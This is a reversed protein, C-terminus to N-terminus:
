RGGTVPVSTGVSNTLTVSVTGIVNADGNFTFPVSLSTTGGNSIGAGSAFWAAAEPGFTVTCNPTCGNMQTGSAATFVFAGSILDRSTSSADLFVQFGSATVNTIKVSGPVIVPPLAPLTIKVSPPTGAFPVIQAGGPIMLPGLSAVIDGAVSGLQVAPIPPNPTTSNAPISVAFRTTGDPFQADNYGAPLGPANTLFGLTFTASLAFPYSQALSLQLTPQDAPTALQPATITISPLAYVPLAVTATTSQSGSDQLRMMLQYNGTTGPTGSVVATDGSATMALDPMSNSPMTWKYPSTGGTAKFTQSWPVSVFSTVPTTPSTIQIPSSSAVTLVISPSISAGDRTDGSYSASLAHSGAALTSTTYTATGGSLIATALVAQSDLFTISGTASSPTVSATLTVSQGPSPSTPSASLVTATTLKGISEPFGNSTSTGNKSDGSYSAYLTHNGAPLTSTAFTAIGGNLPATGLTTSGDQFTVSGTASAPSVTATMTVAQGFPSPAPTVSLTTTTTSLAVSETVPNSTSAGNRADGGYSASLTHNGASLTSTTVTAVGSNLYATGLTTSGDQFTVSGTASAPSVTATLTVPQGLTAPAPTVTLSTTTAAASVSETFPTSNSAANRLDGGYSASLSHSGSALTSTTFTAIGGSLAITGLATSGDQFTVSGTASAPSVTATLTVPQGLPAPSPSVSLTTTTTSLAVSETALNSTSSANKSDGGYSASLIHSGSALTATTFTAIGGNLTATGLTLLGDLFTVTGVASSPTVTATLTVSQGPSAPIPTASLATTSNQLVGVIRWALTGPIRSSPIVGGSFLSGSNSPDVLLGAFASFNGTREAATPVYAAVPIGPSLQVTGCFMQNPGAPLPLNQYVTFNALSMSGVAALDGASNPQTVSAISSFPVFGAPFVACAPAPAVTEIVSNSSSAAYNGDGGYSATLTHTGTTLTSTSITASGNALTAAGLTVTGDKFSVTGTAASPTLTATLIVAQTPTASAPAAVLTATTAAPNVTETVSASKASAYNTDGGYTAQLSHAGVKLTSTTITASGSSLTAGGLSIGTSTDLVSVTGTASAPSVALALTVTQAYPAPNPSPTLTVTVSPANVVETVTTSTSPSYATSGNYSATLSHSGSTLTSTALTTSGNSLTGTGLTATGDKFTVTGTASIPAVTATLNVSQGAAVPNPSAALITTTTASGSSNIVETVSASTSAGNNTDGSYSATLTHSGSTLTSTSFTAVGGSLTVTNLPTTGDKFVVTGTVGAPTVSATMTVSQGPTAPNPTVVLLTAATNTASNIVETVPASTSAANTTDGSYTATLSHTGATLTSTAFAAAGNSMTVTNLTAAGDKFTISGTATTPIVIANMTVQQGTVAPNPLAAMGTTTTAKAAAVTVTVIASTSGNFALDGSYVATLSHSGATLTATAFSASGNSLTGPGLAATGDNFTVIGTATSPSVTATLTVTQGPTTSAASTGLTTTSTAKTQGVQTVTFSQGAITLTASRAGNNPNALLNFQVTGNGSGSSGATIVVWDVPSSATWACSTASAAVSVSGSSAANPYTTNGSLTYTCNSQCAAISFLNTSSSTDLFRVVPLSSSAVSGVNAASTPAFSLNVTATGPPPSNAGPNATFQQWVGFQLTESLNPNTNIVEWVASASGNVVTLEALGTAGGNVTTTPSATPSLGNTDAASEGQILLAYSSTSNGSPAPTNSSTTNSALNTVSVFIRVGAPINNFSAKLRTGYDALGAIVGGVSATPFVFGSESSFISGPVNQIPWGSQGTYTSAPVVRTMFATGFNESFRVMAVPAPSTSGICQSLGVGGGTLTGANNADRVNTALGPQVSGVNVVPNIVNLTTAGSTTISATLTPWGLSVGPLGAANARINTIRFVRPPGSAPALIPVGTFTVQNASVVGQFVNAAPSPTGTAFGAAVQVTGGTVAVDRSYEACGNPSAGLPSNCLTQPAAPGFNAVTSPSGNGPEDILLLAESASTNGILNLLRSTVNTNLGITINATPIPSGNALAAGGSCTLVVDAILETMGEYRVSPVVVIAAGCTLPGSSRPSLGGVPQGPLLAPMVFAIAMLLVVQLHIRSRGTM